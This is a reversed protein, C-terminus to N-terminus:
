PVIVPAVQSAPGLPQNSGPDIQYRTSNLGFSLTHKSNLYYSFDTKFNAQNIDFHFRYADVPNASSSIGYQYHDYGATVVSFLKNSFNHKWKIAANANGYSYATDSNLKFGDNSLYTSLFITNKNDMHHSINLNLDYFS